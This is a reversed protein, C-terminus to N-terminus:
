QPLVVEAGTEVAAAVCDVGAGSVVGFVAAVRPDLSTVPNAVATEVAGGVDAALHTDPAAEAVDAVAIDVQANAFGASSYTDPLAFGIQKVQTKEYGWLSSGQPPEKNECRLCRVEIAPANSFNAVPVMIGTTNLSMLSPLAPSPKAMKMHNIHAIKDLYCLQTDEGFIGQTNDAHLRRSFRLASLYELKPGLGCYDTM